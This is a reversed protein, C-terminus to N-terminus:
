RKGDVGAREPILLILACLVLAIGFIATLIKTKSLKATFIFM